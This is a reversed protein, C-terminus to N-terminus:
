RRLLWVVRDYSLAYHVVVAGALAWAFPRAGVHLLAATALAFFGLELALRAAGPIPVGAGGSRSPDGPVAFVAWIAGTCVPLGIALLWRWWAGDALRHGWWGVSALAALELVFRLALNAPHSAM